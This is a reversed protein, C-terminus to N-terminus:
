RNREEEIEIDRDFKKKVETEEIKKAYQDNIYDHYGKDELAKQDNLQKLIKNKEVM